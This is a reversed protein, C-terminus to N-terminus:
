HAAFFLGIAAVFAVLVILIATYRGKPQNNYPDEYDQKM